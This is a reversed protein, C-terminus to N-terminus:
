GEDQEVTDMEDQYVLRKACRCNPHAPPGDLGDWDGDFPIIGMAAYDACEDSAGADEWEMGVAGSQNGFETIGANYANVAETNAIREARYGDQNIIDAIRATAQDSTEGLALSTKIGEAIDERVTDTINYAANPNDVFSGDKAVTKGVLAAVQKTSLNQIIADTSHIGLPRNYTVEGSQAGAAVLNNVTKLNLQIFLGDFEDLQDDNIVAEVNFDLKDLTAKSAQRVQYNYHDWNVFDNAKAAMSKFFKTLILQMQAQNKILAAHQKPAKSYIKPWSEAALIMATTRVAESELRDM